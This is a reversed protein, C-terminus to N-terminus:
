CEETVNHYAYHAMTFGCCFLTIIGSLHFSEAILYSLYAIAFLVTCEKSSQQHYDQTKLAQALNKLLYAAALGFLVGV